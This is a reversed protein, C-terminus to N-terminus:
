KYMCGAVRFEFGATDSSSVVGELLKPEDGTMDSSRAIYLLGNDFRQWYGSKEERLEKGYGSIWDPMRLEYIAYIAV